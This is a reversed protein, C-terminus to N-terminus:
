SKRWAATGRMAKEWVEPKFGVLAVGDGIVFPRKVLNGHRSLLDFAQAETMAPLKDKMGLARYDMGSTNFLKRLDNGLIRLATELEAPTPPTERIPLAVYAIRHDDLWRTADRCTSCKQYIYVRFM